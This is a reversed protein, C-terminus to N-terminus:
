CCRNVIMLQFSLYVRLRTPTPTHQLGLYMAHCKFSEFGFRHIRFNLVYRPSAWWSVFTLPQRRLECLLWQCCGHQASNLSWSRFCRKWGTGRGPQRHGAACVRSPARAAHVAPILGEQLPSVMMKTMKGPRCCNVHNIWASAAIAHPCGEPLPSGDPVLRPM